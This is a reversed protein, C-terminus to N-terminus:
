EKSPPNVPSSSIVLPPSPCPIEPSGSTGPTGPITTSPTAPTGPIVTDPMGPGGPIVTDPTGPSGPIVTDSTGPTGPSGPIPWCSSASKFQGPIPAHSLPIAAAVSKADLALPAGLTIEIQAGNDLLLDNNTSVQVAVDILTEPNAPQINGGPTPTASPVPQAPPAGPLAAVYGNAFIIQSILIQLEARNSKRTPRTLKQLMGQVFTGPPIAIGNGVTVPYTTQAYIQEGPSATRAFVPRVLAVELRSGAPLTITTSPYAASQPQALALSSQLACASVLFFASTHALGIKQM